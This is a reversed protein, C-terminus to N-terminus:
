DSLEKEARSRVTDLVEAAVKLSGPEIGDTLKDTM